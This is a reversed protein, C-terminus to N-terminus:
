LRLCRLRIPNRAAKCTIMIIGIIVLVAGIFKLCSLKEGLIATASAITFIPETNMLMSAKVPGIIKLGAYFAVYAVGIAFGSCCLGFLNTSTIANAPDDGIFLFLIFLLTGSFLSHLNVAQPDATRITLSSVAVFIAMGIAAMLAFLVGSIQFISTAQIGLALSLGLFAIVVATLRIITIPENDTFRSIFITFFPGTYFVLVATSVPIYQTAGLYGIGMMFVTLGLALAMYCERPQIKIPKKAVKQCVFLLVTAVLYRVVNSTNVGVGQKIVMSAIIISSSFGLGSILLLGIGIWPRTNGLDVQLKHKVSQKIPGMVM